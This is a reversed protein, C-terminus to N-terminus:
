PAGSAEGPPLKRKSRSSPPLLRLHYFQGAYVVTCIESPSATYEACPQHALAEEIPLTGLRLKESPNGARVFGDGIRRLFRPSVKKRQPNTSSRKEAWQSDSFHPLVSVPHKTAPVAGAKIGACLGRKYLNVSLPHNPM